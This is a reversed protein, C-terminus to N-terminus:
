SNKAVHRMYEMSIKLVGRYGNKNEKMLEKLSIKDALMYISVKNLVNEIGGTLIGSSIISFVMVCLISLFGLVTGRYSFILVVPILIYVSSNLIAAAVFFKKEKILYYALILPMTFLSVVVESLYRM